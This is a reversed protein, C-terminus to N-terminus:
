ASVKDNWPNTANILVHRGYRPQRFRRSRPAADDRIEYGECRDPPCLESVAEGVLGLVCFLGVACPPPAYSLLILKRLSPMAETM